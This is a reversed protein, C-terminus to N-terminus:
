GNKRNWKGDNEVSKVAGLPGPRGFGTFFPGSRRNRGRDLTERVACIKDAAALLWATRNRPVHFLTLPWMHTQIASAVRDPVAFYRRAREAAIKPHHYGHLKDGKTHWDYLYFDHLLCAEVLEREDARVHLRINLRFACLAVHLSHRYTTVSGHQTFSKLTQYVPRETINKALAVFRAQEAPSLKM